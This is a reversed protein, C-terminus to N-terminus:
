KLLQERTIVRSGPLQSRFQEIMNITLNDSKIYVTELQPMDKMSVPLESLGPMWLTLRNIKKMQGIEPPLSSINLSFIHLERIHELAYLQDPLSGLDHLNLYLGQLNPMQNLLSFLHKTDTQEHIKVSLYRLNKLETISDHMNIIPNDDLVLHTLNKLRTVEIPLSNTIPM